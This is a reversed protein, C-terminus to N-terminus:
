APQIPVQRVRATEAKPLRVALVGQKAQAKVGGIDVETPLTVQRLFPGFRRERILHDSGAGTSIEPKQGRITLVRGDVTLDIGGPDVGPLDLEVIVEDNTEYLDLGPVWSVAPRDETGTFPFNPAWTPWYHEVLRNIENQLAGLPDPRSGGSRSM